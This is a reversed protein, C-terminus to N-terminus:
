GDGRGLDYVLGVWAGGAEGDEELDDVEREGEGLEHEGEVEEVGQGRVGLPFLWAVLVVRLPTGVRLHHPRRHRHHIQVLLRQLRLPAPAKPPPQRQRSHQRTDMYMYMHISM